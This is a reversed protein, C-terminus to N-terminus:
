RQGRPQKATWSVTGTDIASCGAVPGHVRLTGAMRTNSSKFKGTVKVTANGVKGTASFKGSSVKVVDPFEGTTASSSRGSCTGPVNHWEFKTLKSPSPDLRASIEVGANNAGGAAPGFYTRRQAAFAIAPLALALILITFPVRRRMPTLADDIRASTVALAAGISPAHPVPILPTM